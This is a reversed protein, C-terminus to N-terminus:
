LLLLVKGGSEAQVIVIHQSQTERDLEKALRIGGSNYLFAM